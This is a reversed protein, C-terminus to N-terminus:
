CGILSKRIEDFNSDYNIGVIEVNMGELALKNAFKYAWGYHKYSKVLNGERDIIEYKVYGYKGQKNM